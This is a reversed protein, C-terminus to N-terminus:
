YCKKILRLHSLSTPQSLSISADRVDARIRDFFTNSCEDLIILALDYVSRIQNTRVSKLRQRISRHVGSLDHKNVGYRRPFSTIITEEDLVWMWLQDVMVLQSVKKIDSRCQDCGYQGTNKDHGTWKWRCSPDCIDTSPQRCHDGDRMDEAKNRQGDINSPETRGSFTNRLVGFCGSGPKSKPMLKELKHCLARDTHTDRYVVQDRDRAKTTRLTWYFSQDLTRRPHLPPDHFLYKELMRQDRYTSMAEYLRAADVLYQGLANNVRLRGTQDIGVEDSVGRPSMIRTVASTLTRSVRKSTITSLETDTIQQQLFPDCADSDYSVMTNQARALQSRASIRREKEDKKKKDQEERYKYSEEDIMKSIIERMRDTEWHLYPMQFM